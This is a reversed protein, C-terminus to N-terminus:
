SRHDAGGGLAQKKSQRCPGAVRVATISARRYVNRRAHRRWERDNRKRAFLALRSRVRGTKWRSREDTGIFRGAAVCGCALTVEDDHIAERGQVTFDSIM